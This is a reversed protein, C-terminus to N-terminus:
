CKTMRYFADISDFIRSQRAFASACSFCRWTDNEAGIGTHVRKLRERERERERERGGTKFTELYNPDLLDGVDQWVLDPAFLCYWSGIM